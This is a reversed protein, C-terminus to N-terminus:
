YQRQTQKDLMRIIRQLQRTHSQSNALRDRTMFTRQSDRMALHNHQSANNKKTKEINHIFYQFFM